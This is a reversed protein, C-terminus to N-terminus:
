PCEFVPLRLHLKASYSDNLVVLNRCELEMVPSETSGGVIFARCSSGAQVNSVGWEWGLGDTFRLSTLRVEESDAPVTWRFVLGEVEGRVVAEYGAGLSRCSVTEVTIRKWVEGNLRTLQIEVEPFSFSSLCCWAMLLTVIKTGKSVM